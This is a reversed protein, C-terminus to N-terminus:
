FTIIYEPYCANDHFVVFISPKALSDVLSDFLVTPNARNKAPPMIMHTNGVCYQGVLVRALYMFRSGVAGVAYGASYSADRAFYVGKGYATGLFVPYLLQFKINGIM